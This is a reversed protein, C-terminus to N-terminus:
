LASSANASGRMKGRLLAGITDGSPPLRFAAWLLAFVFIPTALQLHTDAAAAFSIGPVVGVALWFLLQRSIPVSAECFRATAITFPLFLLVLDYDYVHPNALIVALPLCFWLRDVSFTGPKARRRGLGPVLLLTAGLIAGIWHLTRSSREDTLLVVFSRISFQREYGSDQATVNSYQLVFPLWQKWLAFGDFIGTIAVVGAAGLAMGAVVGFQGSLALAIATLLFYNPKLLFLSLVVGALVARGSRHLLYGGAAFPLWLTAPHGTQLCAYVPPFVLGAIFFEFAHARLAPTFRWLLYVGFMWALAFFATAANMSARLPLLSFPVYLLFLAPPHLPRYDAQINVAGYDGSLHHEFAGPVYLDGGRYTRGGNHFYLYDAGKIYGDFPRQLGGWDLLGVNVGVFIVFLPLLWFTRRTM